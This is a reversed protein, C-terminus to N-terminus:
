YSEVINARIRKEGLRSIVITELGPCIRRIAEDTGFLLISALSIKPSRPVSCPAAPSELLGIHTLFESPEWIQGDLGFKRNHQQIGWNISPLSLDALEASEVPAKTRDDEAFYYPRCSKGNRIRSLSSTTQHGGARRTKTVFVAFCQAKSRETTERLLQSADAVRIDVPPVTGDQIRQAIWEATVDRHPCPSFKLSGHNKDDIGLILLGGHANALCVASDSAKEALHKENNCWGKFELIESELVSAAQVCLQLFINRLLTNDEATLLAM